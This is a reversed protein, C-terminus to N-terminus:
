LGDIGKQLGEVITDDVYAPLRFVRVTPKVESASQIRKLNARVNDHKIDRLVGVTGIMGTPSIDYLLTSTTLGKPTAVPLDAQELDTINITLRRILDFSATGALPKLAKLDFTNEQYLVTVAESYIQRSASLISTHLHPGEGETSASDIYHHIGGCSCNIDSGCTVRRDLGTIHYGWKSPRIMFRAHLLHRFIELRLEVPLTMLSVQERAPEAPLDAFTAHPKEPNLPILKSSAAGQEHQAVFSSM